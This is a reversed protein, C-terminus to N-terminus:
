PPDEQHEYGHEERDAYLLPDYRTMGLQLAIFEWVQALILEGPARVRGTYRLVRLQLAFGFRNHARRRQRINGLDEDSLTYHRLLEGQDGPLHLLAERQRDTLSGRLPM